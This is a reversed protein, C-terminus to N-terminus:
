AIGVNEWVMWHRNLDVAGHRAYFQRAVANGPDVCVRLAKQQVFWAALLRLLESAIGSRRRERIVDIWEIEGQCDFRRTLHGAIFGIIADDEVAVYIVRAPLAERPHVEGAMYGLIRATWYAESEWEAARIRALAPVDAQNAERYSV